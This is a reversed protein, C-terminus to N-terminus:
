ARWADRLTITARFVVIYCVRMCMNSVREVRSESSRYLVLPFVAVRVDFWLLHPPSETV